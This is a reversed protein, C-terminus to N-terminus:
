GTEMRLRAHTGVQVAAVTVVPTAMTPARSRRYAGAWLPEPEIHLANSSV